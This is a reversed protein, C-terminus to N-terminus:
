KSSLTSLLIVTKSTTIIVRNNIHLYNSCTQWLPFCCCVKMIFWLFLLFCLLLTTTHAMLATTVHALLNISWTCSARVIHNLCVFQACSCHMLRTQYKMFIWFKGSNHVVTCSRSLHTRPLLDRCTESLEVVLYGSKKEATNHSKIELAYLQLTSEGLLALRGTMFVSWFALGAWM